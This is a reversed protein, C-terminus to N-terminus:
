KALHQGYPPADLSGLARQFFNDRLEGSPITDALEGILQRATSFAEEAEAQRNTTPGAVHDSVPPLGHHCIGARFSPESQRHRHRQGPSAITCWIGEFFSISTEEAPKIESSPSWLLVVKPLVLLV